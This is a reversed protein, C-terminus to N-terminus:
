KEGDEAVRWVLRGGSVAKRRLIDLAKEARELLTKGEVIVQDNPEVIKMELCKPMIDSQLHEWLFKNDPYFHTRVGIVDVGETWDACKTVDMEYEPTTGPTAERVTVPLMIAVRAQAQAIKSIPQVSGSQSGVCDLLYPIAPKASGTEKAAFEVVAQLVDADRYDFCQTAGYRQLKEHHGKSAMAIIKKYGYWKLVQIAYQGVSSSGGWVLIWDNSAPPVYGEPKPWPMEFEFDHTLTHWTTVFNNGTTVAQQLTFGPPLRGFMNEPATVYLQHAKEAANRYTFGFVVDGVNFKTATPGVEVVTGATGDGLRQPHKVLLGGDAQHLDLPTSATWECRVRIENDTPKATPVQHIELSKGVGVMVVAPHTAM